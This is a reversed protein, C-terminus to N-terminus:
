PVVISIFTSCSKQTIGAMVEYPRLTGKTTEQHFNKFEM